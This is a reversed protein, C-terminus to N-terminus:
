GVVIKTYNVDYYTSGKDLKRICSTAAKRANPTFNPPCPCCKSRSSHEVKFTGRECKIDCLGSTKNYERGPECPESFSAFTLYLKFIMENSNNYCVM